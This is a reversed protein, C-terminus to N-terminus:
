GDNTDNSKEFDAALSDNKVLEALEGITLAQEPNLWSNITHPTLSAELETDQNLNLTERLDSEIVRSMYSDWTNEVAKM